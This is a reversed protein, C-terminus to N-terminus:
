RTTTPSASSTRARLAVRCTATKFDTNYDLVSPEDANIHHDAVGTVQAVLRASGLAHDLYGWQGDFVYSYADPASAAARRPQHVRRGQPGHDPGGHRLLKPRRRDPRGPRRHRDPREGALDALANAANTRVANCNGQGDGADPVTAPALGQEEPPERGRHVRAPRTSRSPRRWRPAAARRRDGGNVFAVSNLAATQGIPTVTAPKYLMGVKIADTGMANIQGTNADADIFAYTGPATAANLQDVLYQIASDTGYGDNEIENVGLVDADVALIAAVTKPWQRDFEAQRTPAAATPAAGGVGLPCNDVTDPLGDFTNFFNLLNMSVVRLTAASWETPRRAAPEGGRLRM